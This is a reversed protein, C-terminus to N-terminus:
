PRGEPHASPVNQLGNNTSPNNPEPYLAQINRSTQSIRNAPIIANEFFSRGARDSTGTTPDYIRFSSNLALVEGFDGNRMRATPVTYTNFARGNRTASWSGFYFLKNRRIPGGATGGYIAHERRGQPDFYGRARQARGAPPLLVDIRSPTRGRSPRSRPRRAGTLGQAADFSNTSINVNEITRGPRHLGRHPLWVNISAAGDIRTVNSNRNTGNINTTLARGPTDTQANQFLPPTAGPM